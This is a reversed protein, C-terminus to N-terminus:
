NSHQHASADASVFLNSSRDDQQGRRGATEHIRGIDKDVTSPANHTRLQGLQHLVGRSAVDLNMEGPSYM